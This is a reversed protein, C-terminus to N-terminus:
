GIGGVFAVHNYNHNNSATEFQESTPNIANQILISDKGTKEKVLKGLESSAVQIIDSHKLCYEIDQDMKADTYNKYLYHGKHLEWNDDIDMILKCGNAKIKRIVEVNGGHPSVIRNFIVHSFQSFEQTEFHYVSRKNEDDMNAFFFIEKGINNKIESYPSLLRHYNIGDVANILVLIM